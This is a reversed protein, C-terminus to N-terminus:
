RPKGLKDFIEVQREAAKRIAILHEVISGFSYLLAGSLVAPLGFMAAAIVPSASGGPGSILMGGVIALAGCAATIGGLWQLVQHM